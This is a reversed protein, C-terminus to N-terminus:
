GPSKQLLKMVFLFIEYSALLSFAGLWLLLAVKKSTPQIDKSENSEPKM